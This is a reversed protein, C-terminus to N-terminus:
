GGPRARLGEVVEGVLREVELRAGREKAELHGSLAFAMLGHVTSWTLLALDAPDGQRIVGERQGQELMGACLEFLSVAAAHLPGGEEGEARKQALVWEGFMLRYHEAYESAFDIYAMLVARLVSPTDDAGRAATRMRDGLDRFAREAVARLLADKDAFHRYPATRSLGVRAGVGRLTVAGPGGEGLLDWAARILRERTDPSQGPIM